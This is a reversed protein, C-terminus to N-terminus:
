VSWRPISEHGYSMAKVTRGIAKSADACTANARSVTVALASTSPTEAKGALGFGLQDFLCPLRLFKGQELLPLM